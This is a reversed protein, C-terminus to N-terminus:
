IGYVECFNRIWDRTKEKTIKRHKKEFQQDTNVGSWKARIEYKPGCNNFLHILM